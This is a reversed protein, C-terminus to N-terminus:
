INLKPPFTKYYCNSVFGYICYWHTSKFGLHNQIVKFDTDPEPTHTFLIIQFLIVM